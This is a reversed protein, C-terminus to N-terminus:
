FTSSWKIDNKSLLYLFRGIDHSTPLLDPLQPSIVLAAVYITENLSNGPLSFRLIINFGKEPSNFIGNTICVM